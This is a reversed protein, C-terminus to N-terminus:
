ETSEYLMIMSILLNTRCEYIDTYVENDTLTGSTGKKYEFSSYKGNFSTEVHGHIDFRTVMFDFAQQWLPAKIVSNSERMTCSCYAEVETEFAVRDSSRIIFYEGFCYDEFGLEKLKLALKNPIFQKNM